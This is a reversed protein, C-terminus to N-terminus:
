ASLPNSGMYSSISNMNASAVRVHSSQPVNAETIQNESLLHPQFYHQQM